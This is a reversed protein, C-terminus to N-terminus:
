LKEILQALRQLRKAHHGRARMDGIVEDADLLGKAKLDGLIRRAAEKGFQDGWGNNGM